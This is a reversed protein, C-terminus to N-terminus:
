PEISLDRHANKEYFVIGHDRLRDHHGQLVGGVPHVPDLVANRGTKGQIVRLM